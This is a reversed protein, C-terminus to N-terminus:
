PRGPRTPRSPLPMYTAPPFRCDGTHTVGDRCHSQNVASAKQAKELSSNISEAMALIEDPEVLLEALYHQPGRRASYVGTMRRFESPGLSEGLCAVFMCAGREEDMAPGLRHPDEDIGQLLKASIGKRSLHEVLPELHVADERACCLTVSTRHSTSM